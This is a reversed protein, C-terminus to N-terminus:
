VPKHSKQARNKDNGEVDSVNLPSFIRELATSLFDSSKERFNRVHVAQKREHILAVRRYLPRGPNGDRKWVTPFPGILVTDTYLYDCFGIDHAM